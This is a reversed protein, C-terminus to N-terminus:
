RHVQRFYNARATIGKISWHSMTLNSISHDLQLQVFEQLALSKRRLKVLGKKQPNPAALSSM